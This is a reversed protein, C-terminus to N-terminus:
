DKAVYGVLSKEKDESTRELDRYFQRHMPKNRIGEIKENGISSQLQHKINQVATEKTTYKKRLNAEKQLSYKAKKADYKQV